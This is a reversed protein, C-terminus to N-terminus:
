FQTTSISVKLIVNGIMMLARRGQRQLCLLHIKDETNWYEDPMMKMTAPLSDLGLVTIIPGLPEDMQEEDFVIVYYHNGTAMVAHTAKYNYRHGRKDWIQYKTNDELCKLKLGLEFQIFIVKNHRLPEVRHIAYSLGAKNCNSCCVSPELMPELLFNLNWQLSM